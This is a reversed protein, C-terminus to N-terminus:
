TNNHQQNKNNYRFSIIKNKCTPFRVQLCKLFQNFKFGERNCKTRLVTSECLKEYVAHAEDRKYESPIKDLAVNLAIIMPMLNEDVWTKRLSNKTKKSTIDGEQSTSGRIRKRGLRDSDKTPAGDIDNENESSDSGSGSTAVRSQNIKKGFGSWVDKKYTVADCTLPHVAMPVTLERDSQLMKTMLDPQVSGGHAEALRKVETSAVHVCLM